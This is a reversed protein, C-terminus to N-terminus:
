FMERVTVTGDVGASVALYPLIEPSDFLYTDGPNLPVKYFETYTGDELPIGYSVTVRSAGINKILHGRRDPDPTLLDTDTDATMIIDKDETRTIRGYAAVPQTFLPM